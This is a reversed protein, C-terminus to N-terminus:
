QEERGTIVVDKGGNGGEKGGEGDLHTDVRQHGPSFASQDEKEESVSQREKGGVRNGFGGRNRLDNGVPEEPTGDNWGLILLFREGGNWGLILLFRKGCNWGLILVFREGCELRTTHQALQRLAHRWQEGVQQVAAGGRRVGVHLEGQEVATEEEEGRGRAEEVAGDRRAAVRQDVGEVVGGNEHLAGCVGERLGDEM